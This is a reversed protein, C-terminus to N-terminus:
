SFIETSYKNYTLCQALHLRDHEKRPAATFREQASNLLLLKDFCKRKKKEKELYNALLIDSQPSFVILFLFLIMVQDM